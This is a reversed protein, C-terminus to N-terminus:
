LSNACAPSLLAKNRNLCVLLQGGPAKSCYKRRDAECNKQLNQIKNEMSARHDTCARTLKQANETLCAHIARGRNKKDKGPKCLSRIDQRCPDKARKNSEEQMKPRCTASLSTMKGILCSDIEGPMVISPCLKETDDFCPNKSRHKQIESGIATECRAMLKGKNAFLCRKTHASGKEITAACKTVIDQACPEKGDFAIKKKAFDAKCAGSLQSENKLLCLMLSPDKLPVDSCHKTLDASCPNSKQKDALLKLSARCQIGLKSENKNLCNVLELKGNEAQPCFQKREQGCKLAFSTLPLLLGLGLIALRM